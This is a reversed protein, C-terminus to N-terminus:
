DFLKLQMDEYDPPEEFPNKIWKWLDHYVMLNWRLLAIMNSYSWSFASKFKLYKLILISIMATWLQIKVANANTGVFTKIKLNQKILKFFTEIEWRDKYINAITSAGLKLNNTLYTYQKDNKEDYYVVRRLRHKCLEMGKQSSLKIIQDSLINRFKPVDKDELVEYATNTKIRTVFWISKETWKSFLSFDFYGKDMAVISNTPFDLNRAINVEHVAGETINIYNPLYGEHDLMLHLKVAGKTTKYKAWDFMSICLDIISADISYLNNKFRFQKKKHLNESRFINLFSYFLKEYLENPRNANAYSLNSKTPLKVLGLHVTKSLSSRLGNCIERLSKASALQCFLMSVFHDWSRFGKSYKDSNYKNALRIFESRSFLSLIQSFISSGSSKFM